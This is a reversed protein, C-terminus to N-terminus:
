TLSAGAADWGYCCLGLLLLAAAADPHTCCTSSM